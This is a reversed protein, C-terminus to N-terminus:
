ANYDDIISKIDEERFIYADASYDSYPNFESDRRSAFLESNNEM